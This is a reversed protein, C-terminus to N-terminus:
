FFLFLHLAVQFRLYLLNDLVQCDIQYLPCKFVSKEFNNLMKVDLHSKFIHILFLGHATSM